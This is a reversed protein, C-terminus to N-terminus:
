NGGATVYLQPTQINQPYTLTFEGTGVKNFSYGNWAIFTGLSTYAYHKNDVGEHTLYTLCGLGPCVLSVDVADMPSAALGTQLAVIGTTFNSPTLSYSSSTTQAITVRQPNGDVGDGMMKGVKWVSGYSDIFEKGANPVSLTYAGTFNALVIKVPQENADYLQLYYTKNQNDFFLKIDHTKETSLGDYRIDFLGGLLVNPNEGAKEIVASLKSGAPAWFNDSAIMNLEITRINFVDANAASGTIIVQAGDIIDSGIKLNTDSDSNIVNLDQLEMKKAGIYFSALHIVGPYSQYLVESVGIEIKDKLVFTDGQQLKSTQEGNVTFKVNTADVYNLTVNYEKGGVTYTKFEGELLTDGISGSMLVLKVANQSPSVAQTITYDRGMIKLTKGVLDVLMNNQNTQIKSSVTSTFELKYRAIQGNSKVFFHDATLETDASRTYKVIENTKDKSEFFLYQKYSYSGGNTVFTGDGLSKLESGGIFSTISNINKGEILSDQKDSNAIQLKNNQIEVKWQEALSTPTNVQCVKSADATTGTPCSAVCTNTNWYGVPTCM